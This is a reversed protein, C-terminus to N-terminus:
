NGYCAGKKALLAQCDNLRFRLRRGLKHAPIQGRHVMIRLANESLRLFHAAEYTALWERENRNEFFTNGPQWAVGSEAKAGSAVPGNRFENKATVKGKKATGETRELKAGRRKGGGGAAIDRRGSEKGSM